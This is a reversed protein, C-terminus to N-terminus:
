LLFVADLNKWNLHHLDPGQTNEYISVFNIKNETMSGKLAFESFHRKM